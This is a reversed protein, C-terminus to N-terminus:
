TPATGIIKSTYNISPNIKEVRAESIMLEKIVGNEKKFYPREELRQISSVRAKRM